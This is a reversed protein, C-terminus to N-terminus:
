IILSFIFKWEAFMKPFDETKMFSSINENDKGIIHNKLDLKKAKISLLEKNIEEKLENM